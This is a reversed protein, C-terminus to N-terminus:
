LIYLYIIGHCKIRVLDSKVLETKQDISAIFTPTAVLGSENKKTSNQLNKKKKNKSKAAPQVQVIVPPTVEAPFSDTLNEKMSEEHSKRISKSSATENLSENETNPLSKDKKASFDKISKEKQDGNNVAPLLVCVVLDGNLARNRNQLGEIM